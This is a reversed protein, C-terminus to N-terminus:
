QEHPENELTRYIRYHETSESPNFERFFIALLDLNIIHENLTWRHWVPIYRKHSYRNIVNIVKLSRQRHDAIAISSGQQWGSIVPSGSESDKAGTNYRCVNVIWCTEGTRSYVEICQM